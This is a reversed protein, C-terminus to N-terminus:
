FTCLIKIEILPFNMKPAKFLLANIKKEVSNLKKTLSYGEACKPLFYNQSM